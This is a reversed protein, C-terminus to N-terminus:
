RYSGLDAPDISPSAWSLAGTDHGPGARIAPIATGVHTSEAGRTGSSGSYCGSIRGPKTGTATYRRPRGSCTPRMTHRVGAQCDWVVAMCMAQLGTDDVVAPQSEDDDPDFGTYEIWARDLEAAAARDARGEVFARVLEVTRDVLREHQGTLDNSNVARLETSLRLVIRLYADYPLARLQAELDHRLDDDDLDLIEDETVDDPKM